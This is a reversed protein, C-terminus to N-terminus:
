WTGLAPGPMQSESVFRVHDGGELVSRKIPFCVRVSAESSPAASAGVPTGYCLSRVSASGLAGKETLSGAPVGPLLATDQLLVDTFNNRVAGTDRLLPCQELPFSQPTKLYDELFVM